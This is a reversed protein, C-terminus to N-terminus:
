EVELTKRKINRLKKGWTRKREGFEMESTLTCFQCCDEIWHWMNLPESSRSVINCIRKRTKTIKRVTLVNDNPNNSCQFPNSKALTPLKLCSKFEAHLLASELPFDSHRTIFKQKTTLLIWSIRSQRFFLDRFCKLPAWNATELWNVKIQNENWREVNIM